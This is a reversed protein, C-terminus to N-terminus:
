KKNKWTNCTKIHKQKHIFQTNQTYKGKLNRDEISSCIAKSIFFLALSILSICIAWPTITPYMFIVGIMIIPFLIIEAPNHITTITFYISVVIYVALILAPITAFITPIYSYKQIAM